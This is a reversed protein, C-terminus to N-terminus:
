WDGDNEEYCECDEYGIDNCCDYADYCDYDQCADDHCCGDYCSDDFGDEYGHDYHSIYDYMSPSHNTRRTSNSSTNGFLFSFLGM